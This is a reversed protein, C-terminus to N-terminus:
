RAARQFFISLFLAFLGLVIGIWILSNVIKQIPTELSSAEEPQSPTADVLSLTSDWIPNGHITGHNANSTKDHAIAGEGENLPWYSVLGAEDGRLRRPMSEQIEAQSLVKNWVRAATIQGKFFSGSFHSGITLTRDSPTFPPVNSAQSILHGDRYLCMIQTQNDYTVAAHIWTNAPSASSDKVLWWKKNHGSALCGGNPMFLAHDHGSLINNYQALPESLKVWAEKTYSSNVIGEPCTIFDDQGDFTLVYEIVPELLIKQDKTPSTSAEEDESPSPTADVLSLTSDWIPNGHITGHNANSTKDHAIAGEGENLPWYSVLGAEDGRLRHPMSEQIEAQTRERSWLQVEALRGPYFLQSGGLSRGLGAKAAPPIPMTRNTAQHWLKGNLYIKMAGTTANKTFAWHTWKGKCDAADIHKALRDFNNVHPDNNGCDFYVASNSWPLHVNLIRQNNACWVEIVSNGQPLAEGGYAWFSCTIEKGWPISAPPLEVWDDQGDFTLVYEIVPKLPAEQNQKSSKAM